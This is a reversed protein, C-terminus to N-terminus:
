ISVPEAPVDTRSPRTVTGALPLAVVFRAGRPRADEVWARGAHLDVLERVVALGIGSGAVSKSDRELRHYPEWIREREEAPIGAGEDVVEILLRDGAARTRITITQGQPGYKVANDLLNLLIQHLGARDVDAVLDEDLEAHLTVDKARTLPAFTDLVDRVERSIDTEELRLRNARRESRAFNLVNDVLYTLRRAEQDIIRASRRREDDSRLKGLSLLEAFLRIQALPTRLEHSVSSVFDTRLRALEQQRRLNLLAVILLGSTLIFLALLMPMRSRPLGGVVLQEGMEPRIAVRVHLNGFRGGLTDESAYRPPFRASSRFIEDGAPDHVAVSLVSDSRLGHLLSPPLLVQRTMIERFLPGTFDSPDSEFGYAAVPRGDMTRALVYALMRLTDAVRAVITIYADNTLVISMETQGDVSGYVTRVPEGAIETATFHGRITDRVWAAIEPSLTEGSTVLSSDRFEFRFFFRASDLCACFQTRRVAADALDAPSLKGQTPDGQPLRLLSPVFASMLTAQMDASAYRKFEWAALRAYDHLAQEATERHSRAAVQAQGALLTTLVLAFLLLAVTLATRPQARLSRRLKPLM